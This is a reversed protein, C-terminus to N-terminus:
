LAEPPTRLQRTEHFNQHPSTETCVSKARFAAFRRYEPQCSSLFSDLFVKLFEGVAVLNLIKHHVHIVNIEATALLKKGVCIWNCIAEAVGSATRPPPQPEGAIMLTYCLWPVVKSCCHLIRTRFSRFHPMDYTVRKLVKISNSMGEIRISYYAKHKTSQVFM